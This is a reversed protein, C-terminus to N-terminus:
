RWQNIQALDFTIVNALKIKNNDRTTLMRPVLVARELNIDKNYVIVDAKLLSTEDDKYIGLINHSVNQLNVSFYEFFPSLNKIEELEGFFSFNNLLEQIRKDKKIFDYLEETSIDNPIIIDLTIANDFNTDYKKFNIKDSSVLIDIGDIELKEQSLDYKGRLIAEADGYYLKESKGKIQFTFEIYKEDETEINNNLIHEECMNYSIIKIDDDLNIPMLKKSGNMNYQCLVNAPLVKHKIRNMLVKNESIAKEINELEFGKPIRLKLTKQIM